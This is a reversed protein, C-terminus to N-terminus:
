KRLLVAEKWVPKGAESCEGMQRWIHPLGPCQLNLSDEVGDGGNGLVSERSHGRRQGVLKWNLTSPLHRIPCLCTVHVGDLASAQFLLDRVHKVALTFGLSYSEDCLM